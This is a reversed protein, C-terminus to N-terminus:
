AGKALTELAEKAAEATKLNQIGTLKALPELVAIARPDGINGLAHAAAVRCLYDPDHLVAILADVAQPDKLRDLAFVIAGLVQNGRYGIPDSPCDDEFDTIAPGSLNKGVADILPQLARKDKIMGLATAARMRVYWEEHRLLEVLPLVAPAGILILADRAPDAVDYGRQCLSALLPKVALEGFQPCKGWQRTQVCFWAGDADKEPTWGISGLAYAINGDYTNSAHHIALLPAAARPDRIAAFMLIVANVTDHGPQSQLVEALPLVAPPGIKKFAEELRQVMDRDAAKNRVLYILGELSSEGGIRGLSRCVALLVNMPQNSKALNCLPVAARKDGFEGLADAAYERVKDSEDALVGLLPEIARPDRLFGLSGAAGARVWYDKKYGLASILGSVDRERKLKDVDPPGFLGM